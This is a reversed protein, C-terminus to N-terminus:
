HLVKIIPKIIKPKVIIVPKVQLTVPIPVAQKRAKPVAKIIEEVPQNNDIDLSKVKPPLTDSLCPLTISYNKNFHLVPKGDNAKTLLPIIM